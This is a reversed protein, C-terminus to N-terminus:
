KWQYLMGAGIVKQGSFGGSISAKLNETIRAQMNFAVAKQGLFTSTGVGMGFNADRDLQPISAMAGVAAIGQKAMQDTQQLQSNLNNIQAQQGSLATSLTTQVATLQNVNVADTGQVGAAVNVVQRASEASGVAVVNSRGGDNSGAGIATSNSGSATSGVGIATSGNASALSGNGVATSNSGSAVAGSGGASSNSGPSSPPVNSGSPNTTYSGSPNITRQNILSTLQSAISDLQSVNVADAGNKGAALGTIQRNGVNVEGASSRPSSLGYAIYNTLAGVTTLSGAGLAISNAYTASAGAGLALANTAGSHAGSGLAVSGVSAALANAGQAVSQAGTATAGSGFAIADAQASSAGQGIAMGGPAAADVSAGNGIGVGNDGNVVTMPGVAISEAGVALSDVRTSNAHFYMQGTVAFSSLAGALQRVTVADQQGTGDAVNTVQRYTHTTADGVSVAGLLTQDTTNYPISASGNRIVGSAPVTARNAVSGAGLAISGAVSAVANPGIAVSDVGIAQSDPATSHAHLYKIGHANINDIVSGVNNNHTTSGDSNYTVYSPASITATTPDYTAGGGLAGATSTGLNNNNTAISSLGTSLSSIGTSTVTSLSTVASITSSLGTSLSGISTSTSTSLATITSNTSSLGTSLSGISTSTATSLSMISSDTTSLGSYLQSGNVADTSTASVIGNAVQDIKRGGVAVVNAIGGDNTGQGM